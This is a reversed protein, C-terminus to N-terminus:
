GSVGRGEGRVLRVRRTGGRTSVPCAAGGSCEIQSCALAPEPHRPVLDGDAGHCPARGGRTSAPRPADRAGTSVPRSADRAGTSVPRPAAPRRVPDVDRARYREEDRPMM